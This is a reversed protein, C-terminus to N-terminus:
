RGQYLDFLTLDTLLDGAQQQIIQEIKASSVQKAVLLAIDRRVTPFKSFLRFSPVSGKILFEYDIEFMYVTDTLNLAQKPSDTCGVLILVTSMVLSNISRNIKVRTM